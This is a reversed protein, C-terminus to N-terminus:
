RRGAAADIGSEDVKNGETLPVTVVVKTGTSATSLIRCTGGLLAARERISQLGLSAPSDAKEVPIGPGDDEVVANVRGGGVSIRIIITSPGAHTVANNVAERLLLFLEAPAARRPPFAGGRQLRVRTALEKTTVLAMRLARMASEAKAHALEPRNNLRYHEYLELETLGAAIAQAVRDHLERSIMGRERSGIVGIMANEM